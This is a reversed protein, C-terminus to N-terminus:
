ARPTLARPALHPWAHLRACVRAAAQPATMSSRVCVLLAVREKPSSLCLMSICGRSPSHSSSTDGCFPLRLGSTSGSSPLRSRSTSMGGCPLGFSPLRVHPRSAGRFCLRSYAASGRLSGFTPARAAQFGPFLWRSPLDEPRFPMNFGVFRRRCVLYVQGYWFFVDPLVLLVLRGCVQQRNVLMENKEGLSGDDINHGMETKLVM